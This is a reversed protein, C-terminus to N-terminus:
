RIKRTERCRKQLREIDLRRQHKSWDRDGHPIVHHDTDDEHYDDDPM